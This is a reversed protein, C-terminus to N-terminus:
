SLIRLFEQLQSFDRLLHTPRHRRLEELSKTGTAVAITLAGARKGAKIDLPTDGIVFSLHQNSGGGVLDKGREIALAVIRPRDESDSGYAGFRFCTSLGARRLKIRAGSRLNGTAIGLLVDRRGSLHRLLEVVGPLVRFNPSTQVEEKLFGLYARAMEKLEEETCDRRHFHLFLNRLIAPDTMGSFDRGETAGPVGYLFSFTRDMARNGAGGSLLLTGDIDFLLLNM